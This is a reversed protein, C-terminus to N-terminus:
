KTGSGVQGQMELVNAGSQRAEGAACYPLCLALFRGINKEWLRVM